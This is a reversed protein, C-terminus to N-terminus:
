CACFTVSVAASLRKIQCKETGTTKEKLAPDLAPPLLQPFYPEPQETQGKAMNCYQGPYAVQFHISPVLM